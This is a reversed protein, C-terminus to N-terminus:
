LAALASSDEPFLGSLSREAEEGIVELLKRLESLINETLAMSRNSLPGAGVDWFIITAERLKVKWQLWAQLAQIDM